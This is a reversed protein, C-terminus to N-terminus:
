HEMDRGLVIIQPNIKLKKGSIKKEGFRRFAPHTGINWIGDSAIIQPNIKLNKDQFKKEGFRGFAPRTGINWIGDSSLSRLSSQASYQKLENKVSVVVAVCMISKDFFILAPM